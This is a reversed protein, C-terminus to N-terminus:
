KEAQHLDAKMDRNLDTTLYDISIPLSIRVDSLFQIGISAKKVDCHLLHGGYLRDDSLFHLHIGPVSLSSMFEPTYFGALTGKINEFEFEPQNKAAEVLPTYNKQKPVSRVKVSSFEGDIRLAYFLNTSPFLSNILELLGQYPLPSLITDHTLPQYFTVCSFPTLTENNNVISVCGDARIQYIVNDLMVMEGDLDNFTGLGMDGYERIESFTINEEYLGEVLAAVPSSIYITKCVTREKRDM